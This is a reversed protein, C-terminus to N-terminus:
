EGFYFHRAFNLLAAEPAPYRTWPTGWDQVQLEASDPTCHEDLRGIIRLAPGGTTLLLEFEEPQDPRAYPSYWGSRVQVSLVSDHITAVAEDLDTDGRCADYAANMDEISALWGKANEQASQLDSM